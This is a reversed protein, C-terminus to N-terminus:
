QNHNSLKGAQWLGKAPLHNYNKLKCNRVKYWLYSPCVLLSFSIVLFGCGIVLLWCGIHDFKRKPVRVQYQHKSSHHHYQCPHQNWPHRHVDKWM